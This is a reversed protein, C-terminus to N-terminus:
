RSIVLVLSNFLGVVVALIGLNRVVRTHEKRILQILELRRFDLVAFLSSM